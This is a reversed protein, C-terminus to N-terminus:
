REHTQTHAGGDDIMQNLQIQVVESYCCTRLSVQIRYDALAQYDALTQNEKQRDRPIRDSSPEPPVINTNAAYSNPLDTKYKVDKRAREEIM